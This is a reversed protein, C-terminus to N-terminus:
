EQEVELTPRIGSRSVDDGALRVITVATSESAVADV